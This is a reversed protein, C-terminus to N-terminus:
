KQIFLQLCMEHHLICVWVFCIHFRWPITVMFSPFPAVCSVKVAHLNPEDCTDTIISAWYSLTFLSQHSITMQGIENLKQLIRYLIILDLLKCKLWDEHNWAALILCRNTSWVTQPKWKSCNHLWTLNPTSWIYGSETWDTMIIIASEMCILINPLNVTLEQM